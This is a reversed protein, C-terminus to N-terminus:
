GAVEFDVSKGLTGEKERQKAEQLALNQDSQWMTANERHWEWWKAGQIFAVILPNVVAAGSQHAIEKLQTEDDWGLLKEILKDM